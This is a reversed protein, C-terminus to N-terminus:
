RHVDLAPEYIAELQERLSVIQDEWYRPSTFWPFALPFAPDAWRAAIWGNYRIMRLGRLPEIYALEFYDLDSFEEYGALVHMLAAEREDRTGSLLMWLDQIAPGTCCDDLDVM